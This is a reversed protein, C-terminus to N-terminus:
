LANNEERFKEGQEFFIFCLEKLDEYRIQGIMTKELYKNEKKGKYSGDTINLYGCESAIQIHVFANRLHRKQM